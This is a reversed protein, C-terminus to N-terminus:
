VVMCWGPWRMLLGVLWHVQSRLTGVRKRKTTVAVTATDHPAATPTPAVAPNLSPHSDPSTTPPAHAPAAYMQQMQNMLSALALPDGSGMENSGPCPWPVQSHTAMAPRTPSTLAM